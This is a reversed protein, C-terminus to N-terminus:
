GPDDSNSGQADELDNIGHTIVILRPIADAGAWLIARQDWERGVAVAEVLELGLILFSAEGPWSGEPHRGIGDFFTHGQTLLASRLRAQRDANEPDPLLQSGPNCATLYASACVGCAQHLDLLAPSAEDVRLTLPPDTFVVYDTERYARLLALSEDM